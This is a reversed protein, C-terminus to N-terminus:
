SDAQHELERLEGAAQLAAVIHTIAQQLHGNAENLDYDFPVTGTRKERSGQLWKLAHAASDAALERHREARGAAANYTDAANPDSTPLTVCPAFYLDALADALDMSGEDIHDAYVSLACRERSSADITWGPEARHQLRIGDSCGEAHVHFTGKAEDARPLNPGIITVRQM